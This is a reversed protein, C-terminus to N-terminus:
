WRGLPKTSKGLSSAECLNRCGRAGRLGDGLWLLHGLCTPLPKARDCGQAETYDFAPEAYDAFASAALEAVADGVCAEFGALDSLLQLSLLANLDAGFGDLSCESLQYLAPVESATLEVLVAVVASVPIGWALLLPLCLLM